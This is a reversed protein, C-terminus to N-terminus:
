DNKEEEMRKFTIVAYGDNIGMCEQHTIVRKVKYITPYSELVPEYIKEPMFSGAQEDWKRKYGIVKNEQWQFIIVDDPLVEHKNYDIVLLSHNHEIMEEIEKKSTRILHLKM